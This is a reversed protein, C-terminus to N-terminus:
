RLKNVSMFKKLSSDTVSENIEDVVPQRETGALINVIIQCLYDLTKKM